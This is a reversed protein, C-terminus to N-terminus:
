CCSTSRRTFAMPWVFSGASSVPRSRRLRRASEIGFIFRPNRTHRKAFAYAVVLGLAGAHSAMQFGDALLAMSGTRYGAVIKGVMLLSPLGFVALTRRANANHDHGLIVYEHSLAAPACARDHYAHDHPM